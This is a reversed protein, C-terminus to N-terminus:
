NTTEWSLGNRVCQVHMTTACHRKYPVFKEHITRSTTSRAKWSLNESSAGTPRVLVKWWNSTSKADLLLEWSKKLCKRRFPFVKETKRNHKQQHFFPNFIHILNFKLSLLVIVAARPIKITSNQQALTEVALDTWCILSLSWPYAKWIKKRKFIVPIVPIKLTTIHSSLSKSLNKDIELCDLSIDQNETLRFRSSKNQAKQKVTILIM